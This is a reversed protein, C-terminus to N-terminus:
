QGFWQSFTKQWKGEEEVTLSPKILTKGQFRDLIGAPNTAVDARTPVRGWTTRLKQAEASLLYNVLLKAANPHPAKANAGVEGYAVIVPDLVWFEVPSGGMKLGTTLSAWNNLTLWYEGAGLSRVVGLKGKQLIPHITQVIGEVLNKGREEGFYSVIGALWVRDTSDIVVHDRWEPHKAFDEYSKPLDEAKVKNTNYAPVYHITYMGFWRKATDMAGPDLNAAEPPKFDMLLETPMLELGSSALVDWMPKGARTEIMIRSMLDAGGGRVYNAKLGSEKEFLQLEPLAEEENTVSYITVEGEARAAALLAKDSMWPQDAAAPLTPISILLAFAALSVSRPISLM